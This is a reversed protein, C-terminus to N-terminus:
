TTSMHMFEKEIKNVRKVIENYSNRKFKKDKLLQKEIWQYDIKINHKAIIREMQKRYEKEKIGKDTLLIKKLTNADLPGKMEELIILQAYVIVVIDQKGM